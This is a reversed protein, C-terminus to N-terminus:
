KYPTYPFNSPIFGEMFIFDIFVTLVKVFVKLFNQLLVM